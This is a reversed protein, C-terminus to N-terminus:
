LIDPNKHRVRENTENWIPSRLRLIPRDTSQYVSIPSNLTTADHTSRAGQAETLADFNVKDTLSATTFSKLTLEPLPFALRCGYQSACLPIPACSIWGQEHPGGLIWNLNGASLVPAYSVLTRESCLVTTMYKHLAKCSLHFLANNKAFVYYTEDDTNRFM